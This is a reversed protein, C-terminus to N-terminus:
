NTLPFHINQSKGGLQGLFLEPISFRFWRHSSGWIVHVTLVKVCTSYPKSIFTHSLNHYPRLLNWKTPCQCWHQPLLQETPITLISISQAISIFYLWKLQIYPLPNNDLHLFVFRTFNLPIEINQHVFWLFWCDAGIFIPSLVHCMPGIPFPMPKILYTRNGSCPTMPFIGM